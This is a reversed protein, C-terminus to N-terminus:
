KLYGFTLFIVLAIIGVIIINLLHTNKLARPLSKVFGKGSIYLFYGVLAGVVNLIVDDVDFVRGIILQTYEISLSAILTLIFVPWIKKLKLYYTVFFGYPIFMLLNGVVNRYFLPSGITYRSIEKFPILNKTSLPVDQWTVIQFLLLIYVLFLLGMIEQYLVFKRRYKILWAIRISVIIIVAIMIIPWTLKLINIINQTLM